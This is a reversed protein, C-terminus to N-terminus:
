YNIPIKINLNARSAVRFYIEISRWSIYIYKKKKRADSLSNKKILLKSLIRM